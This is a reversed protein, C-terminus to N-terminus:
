EEFHRCLAQTLRGVGCGFDLAKGRGFTHNPDDFKKVDGGIEREGTAFFEALDWKGDRKSDATLIAWLPDRKGFENWNKEVDALGADVPKAATKRNLRPIPCPEIAIKADNM